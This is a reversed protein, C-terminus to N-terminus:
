RHVPMSQASQMHGECHYASHLHSRVKNTVLYPRILSLFESPRFATTNQAHSIICNNETYNLTSLATCLHLKLSTIFPSFFSRSVTLHCSRYTSWCFGDRTNLSYVLATRTLQMTKLLPCCYRPFFAM